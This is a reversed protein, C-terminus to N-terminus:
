DPEGPSNSSSENETTEPLNKAALATDKVENGDGLGCFIAVELALRNLAAGNCEDLIGDYIEDFTFLSNGEDDKLVIALLAEDSHDAKAIDIDGNKKRYSKRWRRMESATPQKGNLQLGNLEFGRSQRVKTAEM